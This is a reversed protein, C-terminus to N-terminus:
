VLFDLTMPNALPCKWFYKLPATFVLLANITKFVKKQLSFMGVLQKM